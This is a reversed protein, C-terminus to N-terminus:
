EAFRVVGQRGDKGVVVPIPSFCFTVELARNIELRIVDGRQVEIGKVQRIGSVGALSERDGLAGILRSGNDSRACTLRPTMRFM